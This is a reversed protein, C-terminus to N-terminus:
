RMSEDCHTSPDLGDPDIPLRALVEYGGWDLPGTRLEGGVTAIRERMGVLGHGQHADDPQTLSPGENTVIITLESPGSRVCVKTQVAGCHKLVNTLAEQVIRYASLDIGPPLSMLTGLVTVEVPLGADRVQGILEDLQGLGPQPALNDTSGRDRRLVGLMRRLEVLTTHATEEITELLQSTRENGGGHLLRAAGAQVAIVGVHHSVVDHLERAIRAREDESAQRAAEIRKADVRSARDELEAVYIQRLRLSDGLVWLSSAIVVFAVVQWWSSHRHIALGGVLVFSLSILATASLSRARSSETDVAYLAVFTAPIMVGAVFHDSVASVLTVIAVATLVVLSARRRWCLSVAAVAGLAVTEPWGGHNMELSVGLVITLIVTPGFDWAWGVLSRRGDSVVGERGHTPVMPEVTDVLYPSHIV